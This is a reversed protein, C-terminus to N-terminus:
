VDVHSPQCHEETPPVVPTTFHGTATLLRDRDHLIREQLRQPGCPDPLRGEQSDENCSPVGVKWLSQTHCHSYLSSGTLVAYPMLETTYRSCYNDDKEGGGWGEGRAATVRAM